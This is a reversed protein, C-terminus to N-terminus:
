NKAPSAPAPPAAAVAATAAAAKAAEEAAKRAAEEAAKAAAVRKQQEAEAGSKLKALGKEFDPGIMEDWSKLLGMAKEVFGVSGNMHWTVTTKDGAAQFVFQTQNTSEWPKIFDLKIDIRENPKLDVITMQGEGVDKNGAWHYTAGKGSGEYTKKMGPDLADWPSWAQWGHFDAVMGYVVDAPADVTASRELKFTDPRSAIVACVLAIAIGLTIALKKFM